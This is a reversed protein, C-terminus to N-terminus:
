QLYLRKQMGPKLIMTFAITKADWAESDNRISNDRALTRALNKM